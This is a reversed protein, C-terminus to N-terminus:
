LLHSHSRSSKPLLFPTPGSSAAQRRGQTASSPFRYGMHLVGQIGQVVLLTGWAFIFTADPGFHAVTEKSIAPKSRYDWPRDGGPYLTPSVRWLAQTAKPRGSNGLRCIHPLQHRNM